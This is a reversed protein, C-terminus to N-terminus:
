LSSSLPSVNLSWFHVTRLHGLSIQQNDHVSSSVMNWSAIRLLRDFPGCVPIKMKCFSCGTWKQTSNATVLLLHCNSQAQLGHYFSYRRKIKPLFSIGPHIMTYIVESSSALDSSFTTLRYRPCFKKGLLRSLISIRSHNEQM